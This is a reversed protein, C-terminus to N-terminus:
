RDYRQRCSGSSHYGTPRHASTHAQRWLAQMKELSKRASIASINPTYIAFGTVILPTVNSNDQALLHATAANCMDCEQICGRTTYNIYLPAKGFLEAQACRLTSHRAELRGSPKLASQRKAGNAVCCATNAVCCATLHWSVRNVIPCVTPYM